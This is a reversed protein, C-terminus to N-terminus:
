NPKEELQEPIAKTIGNLMNSEPTPDRIGTKPLPFKMIEQGLLEVFM